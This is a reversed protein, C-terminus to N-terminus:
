KFFFIQKSHLKFMYYNIKYIFLFNNSIENPDFSENGDFLKVFNFYNYQCFYRFSAPCIMGNEIYAYNNYKFAYQTINLPINVLNDQIYNKISNHHCKISEKICNEPIFDIKMEELIHIMEPKNSHISYEWLKSTLEAKNYQLYKFIEISGYFASYEILSPSNKLLFQNTEFISPQIKTNVSYNSKTICTVFEASSDNRILKYIEKDDNEIEKLRREEFNEPIEKTIEGLKKKSLYQKIEPYFYHPYKAQYYKSDMMVNAISQDIVILHLAVLILLIKKSSKFLIFLSFNTFHRKIDEQFHQLIRTIIDFFNQQRHHHDSIKVILRLLSSLYDRNEGIKQENFLLILNNWNEEVHEEDDLLDLLNNQINRFKELYDQTDM